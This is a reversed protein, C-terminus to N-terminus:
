SFGVVRVVRRLFGDVRAAGAAGPAMELMDRTVEWFREPERLRMAAAAERLGPTSYATFRDEGLLQELRDRFFMLAGVDFPREPSPDRHIEGMLVEMLWGERVQSSLKPNRPALHSLYEHQFVPEAILAGWFALPHPQFAWGIENALQSSSACSQGSFASWSIRVPAPDAPLRTAAFGRDRFLSKMKAHARENAASLYALPDAGARLREAIESRVLGLAAQVDPKSKRVYLLDEFVEWILLVDDRQGAYEIQSGFAHALDAVYKIWPYQVPAAQSASFLARRHRHLSGALLFLIDLRARLAPTNKLNDDLDLLPL